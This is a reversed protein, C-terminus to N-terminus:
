PRHKEYMQNVWAIAPHDRYSDIVSRISDPVPNPRSMDPHSPNALPACLAAATLDAVTFCDGVLYGTVATQEAIADLTAQTVKKCREINEPNVGNGKAILGKAFPYTCRYLLRVPLSKGSGFMSTMYGGENIMAAFLVTRTAPGTNADHEAQVALAEKRLAPDAPYLPNEPNESELRDIIAASGAVIEDNWDLVPTQAQGSLKKIQPMHPGPLYTSKKHRIAKFALAWRAKENFHSFAFQHLVVTM